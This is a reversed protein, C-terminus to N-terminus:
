SAQVVLEVVRKRVANNKIAMCAKALALGDKASLFQAVARCERSHLFANPGIQSWLMLGNWM